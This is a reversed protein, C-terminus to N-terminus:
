ATRRRMSGVGLLGLGLLGLTGPEPVTPGRLWDCCDDFYRGDAFFYDTEFHPDNAEVDIELGTELDRVRFTIYPPGPGECLDCPFVGLFDAHDFDLIETDEFIAVGSLMVNVIDTFYSVDCGDYSASPDCGSADNDWIPDEHRFTVSLESPVGDRCVEPFEAVFEADDCYYDLFGDFVYTTELAHAPSIFGPLGAFLICVFWTSSRM